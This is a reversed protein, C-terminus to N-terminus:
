MGSATGPLFMTAALYLGYGALLALGWRRGLRIRGLLAPVIVLSAAILIWVDFDRIHDPIRYPAVIGAVGAIASLNLLNSGVVNGVAVDTHGRYAAVTSAAIEPLSTGIAVITLGIIEESMGLRGAVEVAGTVVMEAGALIGILGGLALLVALGASRPSPVTDDASHLHIESAGEAKSERRYAVIFQTVYLALLGGAAWRNVGGWFAFGAVAATALCFFLTDTTLSRRAVVIPAFLATLGLVLLANAINSGVLNGVMLASAGRLVADLSVVIEPASTALAVVTMGIMLPPVGLRRALGVAGRVLAEAGGFLAALGLGVLLFEM